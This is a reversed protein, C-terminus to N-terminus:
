SRRLQQLERLLRLSGTLVLVGAPLSEVAHHREATRTGTPAFKGRTFSLGACLLLDDLSHLHSM